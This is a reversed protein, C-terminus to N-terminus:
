NENKSDAIITTKEQRHHKGLDCFHSHIWMIKILDIGVKMLDRPRIKSGDIDVWEHLPYEYIRLSTNTESSDQKWQATLRAILEVDFVWRSVFPKELVSATHEKVSLIKAGCQTDYVPLRLIMSAATAFLRGFYHRTAHRVIKRGQLKVRAGMVLEVEPMTDLIRSLDDIADLPTALDADWYGIRDHNRKLAFLLGQRVAEAKGFNKTLRLSSAQEGIQSCLNTIIDHTNDKSGDDVFCFHFSPNESAYLVFRTVPLREAENYCPIILCTSM